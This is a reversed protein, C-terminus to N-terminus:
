STSWALRTSGSQEVQSSNKRSDLKNNKHCSDTYQPDYYGPDKAFKLLKQGYRPYMVSTSVSVHDTMNDTVCKVM